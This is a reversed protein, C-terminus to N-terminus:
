FEKEEFKKENSNFTESKTQKKNGEM